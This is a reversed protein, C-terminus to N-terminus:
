VESVGEDESADAFRAVVAEWIDKLYHLYKSTEIPRDTLGITAQTSGDFMDLISHLLDEEEVSYQELRGEELSFKRGYSVKSLINSPLVFRSHPLRACAYPSLDCIVLSPPRSAIAEASYASSRVCWPELGHRWSLRLFSIPVIPTRPDLRYIPYPPEKAQDYNSVDDQSWVYDALWYRSISKTVGLDLVIGRERPGLSCLIM